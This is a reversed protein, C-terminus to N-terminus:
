CMTSLHHLYLLCPKLVTTARRHSPLHRVCACMAACKLQLVCSFSRQKCAPMLMKWSAPSDFSHVQQLQADTRHCHASQKSSSSVQHTVLLSSATSEATFGPYYHLPPSPPPWPKCRGKTCVVSNKTGRRVVVCETNCCILPHVHAVLTAVKCSQQQERAVAITGQCCSSQMPCQVLLLTQDHGQHSGNTCRSLLCHLTCILSM